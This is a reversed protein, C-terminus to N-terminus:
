EKTTFLDDVSGIDLDENDKILDEDKIEEEVEVLVKPINLISNIVSLRERRLDAESYKPEDVQKYVLIKCATEERKSKLINAIHDWWKGKLFSKIEKQVKQTAM